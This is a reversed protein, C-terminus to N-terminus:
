AYTSHSSCRKCVSFGVMFCLGLVILKSLGKQNEENLASLEIYFTNICSLLASALIVCCLDASGLKLHLCVQVRHLRARPSCACVIVLM